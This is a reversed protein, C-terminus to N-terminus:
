IRLSVQFDLHFICKVWHGLATLWDYSRFCKRFIRTKIPAGWKEACFNSYGWTLWTLDVGPSNALLLTIVVMVKASIKLYSPRGEREGWLPSMLWVIFSLCLQGPELFLGMLKGFPTVGWGVCYLEDGALPYECNRTADRQPASILWGGQRSLPVGHFLVMNLKWILM